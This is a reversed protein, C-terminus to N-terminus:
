IIWTGEVGCCDKYTKNSTMTSKNEDATTIMDNISKKVNDVREKFEDSYMSPGYFNSLVNYAFGLYKMSSDLNTTFRSAHVSNDDVSIVEDNM